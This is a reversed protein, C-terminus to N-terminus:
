FKKIVDIIYNIQSKKLTSYMPMTVLRESLEETINLDAKNKKNKYFPQKHVPPYFHVSASINNSRLYNVFKDRVKKDVEITYMQYSHYVNKDCFPTTIFDFEKLKKNYYDALINRKKNMENIKKLQMFGLAALPNPMRFNHGAFTAERIWPKYKKKERDYTSNTIGHGILARAKEITSSDNSTFMGGEGTTINKTPFFSFCGIGFSGAKKRKWTGGLTEASDEILLLKKQKTLKVISDMNCTQGGFHVVIVAETKSNILPEIKKCSVNRTHSEVDCFVPKAGANVVANATACWTMSPIIVEGRIQNVKLAIELASTCSNMTISDKVGIFSSFASEFKKNWEGHALWGSKIVKSVLNIEKNSIDPLSLPVTHNM